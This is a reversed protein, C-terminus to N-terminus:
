FKKFNTMFINTLDIGGRKNIGFFIVTMINLIGQTNSRMIIQLSERLYKFIKFNRLRSPLIYFLYKGYIIAICLHKMVTYLPQTALIPGKLKKKSKKKNM